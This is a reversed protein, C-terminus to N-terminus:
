RKKEVGAATQTQQEPAQEAALQAQTRASEEAKRAAEKQAKSQMYGAGGIATSILSAALLEGM